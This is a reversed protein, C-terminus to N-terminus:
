PLHIFYRIKHMKIAIKINETFRCFLLNRLIVLLKANTFKTSAMAFSKSTLRIINKMMKQYFELLQISGM